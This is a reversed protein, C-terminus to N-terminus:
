FYFIDTSVKYVPGFGGQGLKNEVSFNNTAVLISNFDFILLETPDHQQNSQLTHRFDASTQSSDFKGRTKETGTGKSLVYIHNICFYGSVCNIM